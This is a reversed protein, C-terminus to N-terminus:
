TPNVTIFKKHNSALLLYPAKIPALMSEPLLCDIEADSVPFNNHSIFVDLRDDLSLISCVQEEGRNYM